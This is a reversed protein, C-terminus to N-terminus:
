FEKDLSGKINYDGRDMNRIGYISGIWLYLGRDM